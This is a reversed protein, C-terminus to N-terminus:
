SLGNDSKRPGSYLCREAQKLIPLLKIVNEQAKAPSLNFLCGLVDFTPYNKLYFLIFFLKLEATSLSGKRGGGPRRKHPVRHKEYRQQRTSELCQTFEALLRDFVKEPLGTFAKFQRENRIIM